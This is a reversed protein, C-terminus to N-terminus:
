PSDPRLTASPVIEVDDGIGVDYVSYGTGPRVGGLTASDAVVFADERATLLRGAQPQGDFVVCKGDFLGPNVRLKMVPTRTAFSGGAPRVERVVGRAVVLPLNVRLRWTDAGAVTASLLTYVSPCVYDSRHVLLKQGLASAPSPSGAALRVLLEPPEPVLAV